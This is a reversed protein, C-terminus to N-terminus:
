SSLSTPQGVPELPFPLLQQAHAAPDDSQTSLQSGFTPTSGLLEFTSADSKGRQLVTRLAEIDQQTAAELVPKVIPRAFFLSRYHPTSIHSAIHAIRNLSYRHADKAQPSGARALTEWCLCCTELGYESGQVAMVSGLATTALFIGSHIEGIDVRAAAEVATAFCYFSILAQSEAAQRAASARAVANRFDGQARDLSAHIIREHAEDYASGSVSVLAAADLCYTRAADIDGSELMVGASVILTDTRADQDGYREHAERARDLYAMARPVDGLRAYAQGINALTKAMQFRGDIALDINISAFALAISDEFRELVFMAFALANMARAEPKRAGVRRFVAIAQAHCNVAERVRGVRRLLLGQSRLVDARIRPAVHAQDTLALARDSTALAGQIDGLERLAEGMISLAEVEIHPALAIRAAQCARNGVAICQSYLNEDYNFVATRMLALAVWWASNSNRALRRLAQLQRRRHRHKGLLRYITELAEHAHLRRLDAKPLLNLAHQFYRMALQNQYAVRAAQGAQLYFDAARSPMKGRAMHRAVVVAALGTASPSQALHEGLGRHLAVREEPSIEQYAVDRAFPHRFDISDGRRDCMGRACLRGIPEPGGLKGLKILDAEPLPGAAVALWHVVEREEPPLEVLRDAILQELTSPLAQRGREAYDGTRVLVQHGDQDQIELAGHDLLTEIMELLFYPNGAVRPILDACAAEVGSTVVLRMQVLRVMEDPQLGRLEVSVLKEITSQVREDPRTLLLVLVPIPERETLLDSFIELSPRDAWQLGEVVLVLPQRASVAHLLMRVGTGVLKRVYSSGEGEYHEVQKGSALEALRFAIPSSRVTDGGLENMIAENAQELSMETSTNTFLRILEAVAGFPVEAQIPSCDLVVKYVEDDLEAMFAKVLASKGIGMEGLIVRSVMQGAGRESPQRAIHLASHLDAKEADRGILDTIIGARRQVQEERSFPRVLQYVQMVHPSGYHESSDIRVSPADVWVFEDRVLRYVAGATWTCGAPTKKGILSALYPASAQLQHEVLHGQADRTGSAIGRVISVSAQIETPWDRSSDKLFEHIDVALSAADGVAHSPNAMLGVVAQANDSETWTLRAGRRFALGELMTRIDNEIIPARPDGLQRLEDVGWLKLTVIAVPRREKAVRVRRPKPTVARSEDQDFAVSAVSEDQAISSGISDEHSLLANPSDTSVAGMASEAQEHGPSTIERAVLADITAELNVAEILVQQQMMARAIAGSMDRASQFRDERRPALARMVVTELEQPIDRAYTSPAEVMGVRVAALLDDGSLGPYLHRGALMEYFVVGLAYVDSRRDVKEGRAQEPSMYGFKGKLVGVEDRFMNATAVGFDAIKVAGEFSVLINQPSVDRHVIGLPDGREDKREHAYHLGKAAEAIIYSAVWPPIRTRKLKAGAILKGLDVGEVYEMSLIQGEEGYDQFEYVQVVNPHNLRTALNAEEAFMSRFRASAGHAPLIRKLVLLKYTQEAGRRKALFVEAMGGVGLRRIIEFHALKPPHNLQPETM